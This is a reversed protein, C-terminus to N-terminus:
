QLIEVYAHLTYKFEGKKDSGWRFIIEASKMIRNEHM